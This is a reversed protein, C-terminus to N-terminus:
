CLLRTIYGRGIREGAVLLLADLGVLALFAGPAPLKWCLLLMMGFHLITVSLLQLRRPTIPMEELILAQMADEAVQTLDSDLASGLVTLALYGILILSLLTLALLLALLSLGTWLSLLLVSIWGILLTPLLYSCLRARLFASPTLPAALYLTLRAGESGLAYPAYEFSVLFAVGAAYLTVQLTESMHLASLEPHLLPFLALLVILVLLRLWAFLHRSQQLLGKFLLAGVPTRWCKLLALLAGLGPWILARPSNDRGQQQQVAALYLLGTSRALPFWALLLCLLLAGNILLCTLPAALLATLTTFLNVFGASSERMWPLHQALLALLGLGLACILGNLLACRPCPLVYRAFLLTALMSLWTVSLAGLILLLLWPLASWGLVLSLTVGLVLAESFLWNGVGHWLVRSFLAHILTAPRLPQIVLFLAEDSSLGSVLTTLVAFLALVAWALLWTLWLHTRLVPNGSTQWQAFMPVLRTMGWVGLALQILVGFIAAIRMRSDFRLVNRTSRLSARWITQMSRM